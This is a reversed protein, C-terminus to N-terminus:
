FMSYVAVMLPLTLISLITTATTVSAVLPANRNSTEAIVVIASATPCAFCIFCALGPGAPFKLLVIFLMYIIPQIILRFISLFYIRGGKLIEKLNTRSMMEGTILMCLPGAMNGLSTVATKLPAVIPIRCFYIILGAYVSIMVPSILIKKIAAKDIKGSLVLPAYVWMFFSNITLFSAGYLAAKDGIIMSILAIGIVGCNPYTSSVFEEAYQPNKKPRLFLKGLFVGLLGAILSGLYCWLIESLSEQNFATFYGKVAMCPLVINVLLASIKKSSVADIVKTKGGIFGAIGMIVLTLVSSITTLTLQKDM